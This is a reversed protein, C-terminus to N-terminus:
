PPTRPRSPAPSGGGGANVEALRRAVLRDVVPAVSEFTTRRVALVARLSLAASAVAILAAVGLWPALWAGDHFAM